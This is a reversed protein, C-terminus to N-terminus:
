SRSSQTREAEDASGSLTLSCIGMYLSVNRVNRAYPTGAKGMEPFWPNNGSGDHSRYRATPGAVTPPPHPLDHWLMTIFSDSVKESLGSNLPLGQLLEVGKELLLDKDDMPDGSALTSIASLVTKANKANLKILDQKVSTKDGNVAGNAEASRGDAANTPKRRISGILTKLQGPM